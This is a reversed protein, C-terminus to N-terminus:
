IINNLIICTNHIVKIGNDKCFKISAESESGPQMWIKNIRLKYCEKVIEETIKPPVVTIVINPKNPLSEINPYCIESNIMKHKPNIAYVIFGSDKLRKYIKYGWKNHNSSVGIVAIIDKKSFLDKFRM